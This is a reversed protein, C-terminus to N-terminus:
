IQWCFIPYQEFPWGIFTRVFIHPLLFPFWPYVVVGNLFIYCNFELNTLLLLCMDRGFPKFSDVVLINLHDVSLTRVLFPPPCSYAVVGNFSIILGSSFFVLSYFSSTFLGMCTFIMSSGVQDLTIRNEEM